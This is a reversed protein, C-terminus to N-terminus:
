YPGFSGVIVLLECFWAFCRLLVRGVFFFLFGMLVGQAFCSLVAEQSFHRGSRSLRAWADGEDQCQFGRHGGRACGQSGRPDETGPPKLPETNFVFGPSIWAVPINEM